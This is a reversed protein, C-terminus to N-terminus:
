ESEEEVNKLLYVSVLGSLTDIIAHVLMVLLLSQSYIFIASFILAFFFIKLMSQIGQYGHLFAFLASTAVCATLIGWWDNGTWYILYNILYGRFIIEEGIGAAVALFVFHIMEKKDGPVFALSKNRKNFTRERKKKSGYLFFFDLLYFVMIVLLLVPIYPHWEPWNLGLGSIPRGPIRWTTTTILAFVILLLANSHYLRIKDDSELKIDEVTIKRSTFALVPALVCIIGAVVHDWAHMEYLVMQPNMSAFTVM